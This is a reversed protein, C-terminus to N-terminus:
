LEVSSGNNRYNIKGIGTNLDHKEFQSESVSINGIGSNCEAVKATSNYVDINGVGTNCDLRETILSKILINGAGTNMEIADTEANTVMINGAGTSFEMFPYTCNSFNLNGAGSEVEFAKGEINDILINGAGTEIDISSKSPIIGEISAIAFPKGSATEGVLKGNELSLMVDNEYREWVKVELQYSSDGKLSINGSHAEVTFTDYTKSDTLTIVRSHELTIGKVRIKDGDFRIECSAFLLPILILVILLKIIKM